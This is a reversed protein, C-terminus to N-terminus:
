KKKELLLRCVLDFRSQLESTHEESRVATAIIKPNTIANIILGPSPRDKGSASTSTGSFGEKTSVNSSITGSFIKKANDSASMNPSIKTETIKPKATDEM